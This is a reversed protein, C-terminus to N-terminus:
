LLTLPQYDTALLNMLRNEDPPSPSYRLTHLVAPSFAPVPLSELLRQTLVHRGGRRIGQRLYYEIFTPSNLYVSLWHIDTPEYPQVFLVDGAPLLGSEGLAFAPLHRTLTPVYIRHRQLHKQLFDYNRLAQWHFWAKSSPMYRRELEERYSLLHQYLFPAQTRLTSEDVHDPILMYWSVGTVKHPKCHAAKVFPHLFRKEADPVKTPDEIRFARDFGSVLGVGVRAIERLPRTPFPLASDQLIGWRDASKWPFIEKRTFLANEQGTRLAEWASAAIAEVSARRDRLKLYILSNSKEGKRFRFIVTEPNEGRFLRAEDLDIVLDISGERLLSARLFRAHTNYFFTYPVIFILEGGPRLLTLAKLIFAYYIDGEATGIIARVSSQLREPLQNFHVYPPNGIILDFLGPAQWSLFDGHILSVKGGWHAQLYAYLQPSYEIAYISSFGAETLAQLFVGHGAGADLTHSGEKPARALSVMLRAIPFPTEVFGVEAM